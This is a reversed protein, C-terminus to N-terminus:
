EGKGATRIKLETGAPLDLEEGRTALVTTTGAAGGIAAGIGAGKGGGIIAGVAAGIGTSLGVTLADRKRTTRGQVKGEADVKGANQVDYVEEVQASLPITVGGKPTISDFSLSLESTGSVRGARKSAAVHGEVTADRYEGPELVRATFKDGEVNDNTSLATLLEIRMSIMQPPRPTEMSGEDPPDDPSHGNQEVVRPRGGSSRGGRPVSFDRGAAGDEYGRGFYDRYTEQYERLEGLEKSYGRDAAQYDISRQYDTRVQAERDRVGKVFGDSYGIHAARLEAMGADQAARAFVPASLVSCLFFVPATISFLSRPKM